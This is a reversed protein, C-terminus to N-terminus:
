EAGEGEGEGGGVMWWRRVMAERVLEVELRFEGGGGQRGCIFRGSEGKLVVCDFCDSAM